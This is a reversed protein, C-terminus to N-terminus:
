PTDSSPSRLASGSFGKKLLRLVPPESVERLASKIASYLTDLREVNTSVEARFREEEETNSPIELPELRVVGASCLALLVTKPDLKEFEM